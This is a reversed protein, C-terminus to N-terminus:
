RMVPLAFHMRRHYQLTPITVAILWRRTPGGEGTEGGDPLTPPLQVQRRARLGTATAADLDSIAVEASDEYLRKGFGCGGGGGSGPWPLSSLSVCLISIRMAGAQLPDTTPLAAEITIPQGPRPDGRDIRVRPPTLGATRVSEYALMAMPLLGVAALLWLVAMAGASWADESMAWRAAVMGLMALWMVVGALWGWRRRRPHDVADLRYFGEADPGRARPPRALPYRYVWMALAAMLLLAAALLLWLEAVHPEAAGADFATIFRVVAAACGLLALAFLLLVLGM